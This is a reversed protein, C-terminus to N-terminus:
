KEEEKEAVPNEFLELQKLPLSSLGELFELSDIQNHGLYSDRICM